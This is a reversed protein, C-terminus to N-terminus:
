NCSSDYSRIRNESGNQCPTLVGQGTQVIQLLWEFCALPHTLTQPAILGCGCASYCSASFFNAGWVKEWPRSSEWLLDEEAQFPPDHYDEVGFPKRGRVEVM